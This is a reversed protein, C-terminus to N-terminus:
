KTTLTELYTAVAEVDSETLPAPYLTPMPPAPNKIWGVVQMHNKRTSENQLSAGAGPVGEGHTGHCAVCFQGFLKKGRQPDSGAAMAEPEAVVLNSAVYDPALGTTMVVVHPTGGGGFTLRGINGVTAAVYQKGDVAYTIIGGALGSDLKRTQLIKGTSAEFVYFNGLLDGAFIVGGATPTIGAVVPAPAHFQWSIKGTSDDLATIWGTRPESPPMVIDTGYNIQGGPKFPVDGSKYVMCWDVAGVFIARSIPSYAPGNWEVGGLAGPCARVGAATPQTGPNVITTVATRFMFKHSARDLVYVYGNKSGIAVRARGAADRYLMPPAGLDYDYGDNANIQYYWKLKGTRADLVVLSDTYLNDGPRKTPAFDPGPNAVPVFIEGTATDLTYSAWTGAGGHKASEPDKWTEAGPEGIQPINNFHWVQRGTKADFAAMWGRIGWDSGAPGIFILNEWAIPAANFFEGQHPDAAQVRWLEKGTKADLALLRGDATGRFLRGNLYAPGRNVPNVETDEPVYLHRWREACTIANLAVSTHGTTVYLTGDIMLMGSQFLGADGLVIQCAPKLDAANAPTIQALPSFRQSDYTHNYTQWDAQSPEAAVAAGLALGAVVSLSVFVRAHM